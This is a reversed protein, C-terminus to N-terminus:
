FEGSIFDETEKTAALLQDLLTEALEWSQQRGANEIALCIDRMKGAALSSMVGKLGHAIRTVAASDRKRVSEQLEEIQPPIDRLFLSFLRRIDELRHRSKLTEIDIPASSPQVTQKEASASELSVNLWKELIARLRDPDVPKSLYDDMGHTLCEARSGEMAHATMAVIPIHRGSGVENNRIVRTTEFGSKDPMQIDMLVLAYPIRALAELAEKSCAAVHAEFGFDRLLLVAVEQNIPHDEVVLILEPRVPKQSETDECPAALRDPPTITHEGDPQKAVMIEMLVNLLASQRFPKRLLAAFGYGASEEKLEPTEYATVMLMKVNELEPSRTIIQAMEIGSRGPMALDIVALEYPDINAVGEYLLKLGHDVSAAVSSRMGWSTLYDQVVQRAAPEDDVVLVRVGQLVAPIPVRGGSKTKQFRVTFSFTSGQGPTSRVLIQGGMLNVLRQSIHLGLGTGDHKRVLSPEIQAFPEFLLDMHEMSIGIGNDSIAFSLTVSGADEAELNVRTVVEGQNSFKVANSILNFLVERLRVPDGVLRPPVNKDIYTLLSVSKQSASSAFLEPVSEITRAFEFESLELSLGGADIKSFNLINKLIARLSSGAEVITSLYHRQQENLATRGLIEVMGLVGNLPTRIEHSMNAVFESKYRSFIEAQERARELDRNLNSLELNVAQLQEARNRLEENLRMVSTEAEKQRVAVVIAVALNEVSEQDVHTYGGDRDALMIMGIAKGSEILPVKMLAATPYGPEPVAFLEAHSKIAPAGNIIWSKEEEQTSRDNERCPWRIAPPPLQGESATSVSWGFHCASMIKRGGDPQFLILYGFKSGTLEGAATLCAEALQEVSKSSLAERLVKNRATLRMGQLYTHSELRRRETIDRAAAFVGLVNGDMDRYISANYLVDTLRGDQHRITLPYDTVLGRAFVQQYGERAKEPETFYNSFDTGILKERPLGTVRITAENVDTIKGEASITVLPDLSCEILSRAYQFAEKQKTIDRAAAFVGLVSGDMDRYISANYLVHTLRGDLHLITLPYDTVSGRAFAQQYGESAKDPETFYESFNTGIIMERSVGTAKITAENVDTIKGEASITVLPDLSCEILNRAYTSAQVQHQKEMRISALLEALVKMVCCIIGQKEQDTVPFGTLKELNTKQVSDVERDAAELPDAALPANLVAGIYASARLEHNVVMPVTLVTLGHPCRFTAYGEVTESLDAKSGVCCAFDGEAHCGLCSRQKSAVFTVRKEPDIVAITVGLAEALMSLLNRLRGTLTDVIWESV